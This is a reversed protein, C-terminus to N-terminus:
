YLNHRKGKGDSKGDLSNITNENDKGTWKYMQPWPLRPEDPHGEAIRYRNREYYIGGLEGMNSNIFAAIVKNEPKSLALSTIKERVLDEEVEYANEIMSKM